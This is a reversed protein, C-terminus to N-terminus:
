YDEIDIFQSGRKPRAEPLDNNEEIKETKGRFQLVVDLGSEGEKNKTIKAYITGPTGADFGMASLKREDASDFFTSDTIDEKKASNWLCVITEAYRTLDASEAINNAGMRTPSPTQRNLQAAVVLPIPRSKGEMDKSFSQLDEAVLRLDELRSSTKRGSSLRQIYDVFVAKIRKRKEYEYLFSVLEESTDNESYIRLKGSTLLSEFREIREHFCKLNTIDSTEGTKAYERILDLNKRKNSLETGIYANLLRLKTKRPSDEYTFFLTDGETGDEAINLALNRLFTSKAHSSLGCIMTIGETPIKLTEGGFKYGTPIGEPERSLDRWLDGEKPLIFRSEYKTATQPEIGAGTTNEKYEEKMPRLDASIPEIRNNKYYNRLDTDIGNDKCLNVFYGISQSEDPVNNDFDFDTDNPDYKPSLCCVRHLYDRGREGLSSFSCVLPFYEKYNPAIDKGSEEVRRVLKEIGDDDGFTPSYERRPRQPRKSEPAPHKESDFETTPPFLVAEPDHCLFCTRSIDKGSTDVELSPYKKRLSSSLYNVIASYEREYEKPSHYGRKSKCVIKLGDGSPSVFLLRLGLESDERLSERLDSLDVGQEKLHDIDLIVLGSFVAKDTFNAKARQTTVEYTQGEKNRRTERRKEPVGAFVVNDFLFTKMLKYDSSNRVEETLSPLTKESGSPRGRFDLGTRIQQSTIYDAVDELSMTRTSIKRFRPRNEKQAKEEDSLLRFSDYGERGISPYYSICPFSLENNQTDM